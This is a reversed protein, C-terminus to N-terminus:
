GVLYSLEAEETDGPMGFRTQGQGAGDGGLGGSGPFGM